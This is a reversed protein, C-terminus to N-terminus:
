VVSKRDTTDGLTLPDRDHHTLVFVPHHYPPEEGWWGNWPEEGWPGPGGGFMGRGMVTAGTREISHRILDDDPGTEGGRRGHSAQWSATAFAWEHLEEGRRGLPQDPSPDPGAVYGDLSTSIEFNVQTM